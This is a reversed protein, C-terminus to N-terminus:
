RPQSCGVSKHCAGKQDPAEKLDYRVLIGDPFIFVMARCRDTMHSPAVDKLMAYKGALLEKLAERYAKMTLDLRDIKRHEAPSLGSVDNGLPEGLVVPGNQGFQFRARKLSKKVDDSM